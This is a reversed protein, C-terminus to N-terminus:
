EFMLTAVRSSKESREAFPPAMFPHTRTGRIAAHPIKKHAASAAHPPPPPPGPGAGAVLGGVVCGVLVGVCVGEVVLAVPVSTLSALPVGSAPTVTFSIGHAGQPAVGDGEVDIVGSDSPHGVGSGDGCAVVGRRM